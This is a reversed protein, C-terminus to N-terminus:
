PCVLQEFNQEYKKFTHSRKVPRKGQRGQKKPGFHLELIWSKKMQSPTPDLWKQAIESAAMHVPNSKTMYAYDLHADIIREMRVMAQESNKASVALDFDLCHARVGESKQEILIHLALVKPEARSKSSKM